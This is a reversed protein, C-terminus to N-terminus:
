VVRYEPSYPTQGSGEPGTETLWRLEPRLHERSAHTRGKPRHGLLDHIGYELLTWTLVGAGFSALTKM